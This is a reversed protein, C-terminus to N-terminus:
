CPSGAIVRFGTRPSGEDVRCVIAGPDLKAERLNSWATSFRRRAEDM